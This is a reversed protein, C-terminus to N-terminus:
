LFNTPWLSDKSELVQVRSVPEKITEEIIVPPLPTITIDWFEVQARHALLAVSYHIHALPQERTDDLEMKILQDKSDLAYWTMSQRYGLHQGQKNVTQHSDVIIKHRSGPIALFKSFKAVRIHREASFKDSYEIGIGGEPNYYWALGYKWGRRPSRNLTDPHGGWLPLIGFGFDESESAQGVFRMTAEVRRGGKFAGSALLIRDYGETGPIPRIVDQHNTEVVEWQGDQPELSGSHGDVGEPLEVLTDDYNVSISVIRESGFLNEVKVAIKNVGPKLDEAFFELVFERGKIRSNRTQPLNWRQGNIKYSKISTLRRPLALEGSVNLTLYDAKKSFKDPVQYFRILQDEEAFNFLAEISVIIISGVLVALLATKLYIKNM